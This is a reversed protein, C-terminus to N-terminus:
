RDTVELERCVIREFWGCLAGVHGAPAPLGCLRPGPRPALPWPQVIRAPEDLSVTFARLPISLGGGLAKVYAEKRTWLTFFAETRRKEPRALYAQGEADSCFRAVLDDARDLPRLAEVDVGIPAGVAVAVLTCAGSHSLNFALNRGLLHPKGQPSRGFAVDAPALGTAAALICRAAGHSFIFCRRDRERVFRGARAREDPDLSAMFLPPVALADPVLLSWVAVEGPVPPELRGPRALLDALGIRGALRVVPESCDSGPGDQPAM